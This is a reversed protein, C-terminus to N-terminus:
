VVSKRDPAGPAGGAVDKILGDEILLHMGGRLSSSKGDFLWFNTFVIPPPSVASAGSALGLAAIASVTGALMGRRSLEATIRQEAALLTPQCCPCGTAGDENTARTSM